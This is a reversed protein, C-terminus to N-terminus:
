NITPRTANNQRERISQIWDELAKVESLLDNLSIAEPNLAQASSHLDESLRAQAAMVCKVDDETLIGLKFMSTPKVKNDFRELVPRIYDCIAQEWADRMQGIAGKCFITRQTDNLHDFGSKAAKISSRLANCMELGSKAKDPLENEVYGPRNQQRRVNRFAIPRNAKEAERRLEYLFVLDHTFVVVQRHEAEEVLRSAVAGRHIHDLSSMPDDFVIGSYRQATVLEALFAALAVCRHEGESFIEGVKADPREVLAVRFYSVAQRDKEKRLEVPMRSLKLKDIERAFRGRLADTVMRDSLEKNKDTIPKKATAKLATNITESEQLRAIQAKIDPLLPALAARDKLELYESKLKKYDDSQTDASLQAARTKLDAALNSLAPLPDTGLPKPAGYARLMARLRWLVVIFARRVQRALSADGIETALFKSHKLVGDLRLTRAELQVLATDLKARAAAEDSKTSSKVFSEFTEQRAIADAGLPQQCLVCLTDPDSSPFTKGPYAVTDAYTRAAEWLKQWAAQGVEPLPSASFLKQSAISAAEVAESHAKRLTGIESFAAANTAGILTQLTTQIREIEGRQNDLRAVARKPDQAFDTELTTLRANEAESLVALKDLQPINSKANLGFVYSGAATERSLSPAAIALPVQKNLTAIKSDLAAKIRDCADALTELLRMPRPIYAVDNTSEVHISASRSDFISVSPLDSHPEGDPTWSFQETTSGRAFFIEASQPTDTKDELDRHIAFKADRSRCAHKLVRVYGSKGSANDGYIVTLGSQEFSLEQQSALANIATPNKISVLSIPEASSTVAGIHSQSIPAHARKPDLCLETLEAIAQDDLTEGTVLRRLADKQWAPRKEAWTVLDALAAKETLPASQSPAASM